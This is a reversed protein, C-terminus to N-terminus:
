CRRPAKSSCSPWRPRTRGAASRSRSRTGGSCSRPASWPRPSPSVPARSREREKRTPTPPCAARDDTGDAGRGRGRGCPSPLLRTAVDAPDAPSEPLRDGAAGPAGSPRPRRRHHRPDKGPPTRPAPRRRHPRGLGGAGRPPQLVRRVPLRGTGGAGRGAPGHPCLRAARCRRGQALARLGAPRVGRDRVAGGRRGARGHHRVRRRSQHRGQPRVREAGGGDHGPGTRARQFDVLLVSAAGAAAARLGFGGTHCFVDAMRAGGALRAVLDRNGRQDFFWGTKQGALLDVPFRVGGEVVVAEASDGALLVVEEPLGELRRAGSDNRAVIARPALEALLAERLAPLTRDMGAANAQVVAVDDFRDVILGPLFDAEAHVLRHFNSDCVRARLAIADRLRARFWSTDIAADPDRDLLRVAILSHPNFMAVGFRAGDDGELRVLGGPPFGRHEPGLALENSYAWPAGARLRRGHGPRLKLVPRPDSVGARLDGRDGPRRRHVHDGARLPGPDPAARLAGEGDADGRDGGGSPRALHGIRESQDEGPRLRPGEGGRLGAGRVGREFEIVDIEDLRLGARALAKRTAPVPGIGMIKPDVGAHAYAVLRGLPTAGRKEATAAEMLVVAAAGDNIGSANGATVTGDKRFVARLKGLDEATADARVHEDTDFVTEGKRSKLRVPLIQEKFRGEKIARGARRHSEVALADQQARTIQHLEALNEATEGMHIHHFPDHLAALMMDIMAADGMRAGWRVGQALYAARSMSEAGAGVAIDADGLLISQSASVIAQLGSGCLRNLTLAPADQTVGAGLAAVRAFYMDKAETHIVNGFVVHEVEEGAVAARSLAERVVQAGLETPPVDKLAGGFDGIPTRVGSVVLVERAM